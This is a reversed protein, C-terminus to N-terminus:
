WIIWIHVADPRLIWRLGCILPELGKLVQKVNQLRPDFPEAIMLCFTKQFRVINGSRLEEEDIILDRRRNWISIVRQYLHEELLVVQTELIPPILIRTEICNPRRWHGLTM